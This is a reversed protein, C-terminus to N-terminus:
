LSVRKASGAPVSAELVYLYPILAACVPVFALLFINWQTGSADPFSFRFLVLFVCLSGHLIFFPPQCRYKRIRRVVRHSRSLLHGTHRHRLIRPLHGIPSRRQDHRHKSRCSLVARLFLSLTM